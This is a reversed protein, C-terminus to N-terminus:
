RDGWRVGTQRKVMRNLERDANSEAAMAREPDYQGIEGREMKKKKKKKRLGPDLLSPNSSSSDM